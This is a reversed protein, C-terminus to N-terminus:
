PIMTSVWFSCAWHVWKIILEVLLVIRYWSTCFYRKTLSRVPEFHIHIKITNMISVLSQKKQKVPKLLSLFYAVNPFFTQNYVLTHKIYDRITVHLLKRVRGTCSFFSAKSLLIYRETTVITFSFFYGIYMKHIDSLSYEEQKNMKCYSASLTSFIKSYALIGILM